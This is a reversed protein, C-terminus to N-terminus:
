VPMADIAPVVRNRGAAKAQYLAKDARAITQDMSEGPFHQSIGLSISVRLEPHAPCPTLQEITSRLKEALPRSEPGDCGPLILLFEEGGWRIAYDSARLAGRLTHATAVLVEDGIRHGYSDNIRKFHDLDALIVTVPQATRRQVAILQEILLSAAHRNLFGTLKDTSAMEEIRRHYRSLALHILAIVILTVLLSVGLNIILTQRIDRLAEDENQEVFLFWKLEPITNVHLVYRNGDAEYQYSGSPTALIREMLPARGSRGPQDSGGPGTLVVNGQADTFFINRNYRRQYDAIVNRVADVTLGIGTAGLYRHEFDYVRYNIFITLADRNALDLDVNIEYDDKMNRVRYYWTDRPEDPSISKLVGDATYYAGTRDSVFFSSFAGYRAKIEALYRNIETKDGEGDLVWHRVFTDQAMASAVVVPRILDKQIESYINNSTLPLDQGILTQRIAQRSVHYSSLATAFFGASLVLSLLILLGRRNVLPLSPPMATNHLIFPRTALHWRKM